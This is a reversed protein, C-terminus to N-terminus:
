KHTVFIRFRSPNEIHIHTANNSRKWHPVSTCLSKTRFLEILVGLLKDKYIDHFPTTKKRPSCSNSPSPAAKKKTSSLERTHVTYRLMFRKSQCLPYLIKISKILGAAIEDDVHFTTNYVLRM